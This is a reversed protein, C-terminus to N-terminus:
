RRSSEEIMRGGFQRRRLRISRGPVSANEITRSDRGCITMRLFNVGSGFPEISVAKEVEKDFCKAQAFNAVDSALFCGQLEGSLVRCECHKQAKQHFNKTAVCGFRM